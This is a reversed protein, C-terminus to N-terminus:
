TVIHDKQGQSKVKFQQLLGVHLTL